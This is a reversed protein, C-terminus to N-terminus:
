NIGRIPTINLDTEVRKLIYALVDQQGLRLYTKEVTEQVLLPTYYLDILEQLFQEDIKNNLM